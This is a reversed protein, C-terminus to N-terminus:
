GNVSIKRIFLSKNPSPMTKVSGIARTYSKKKMTLKKPSKFITGNAIRVYNMSVAAAINFDFMHKSM